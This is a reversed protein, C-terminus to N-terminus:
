DKGLHFDLSLLDHVEAQNFKYYNSKNDTEDFIRKFDNRHYHRQTTVSNFVTSSNSMDDCMALGNSMDDSVTTVDVQTDEYIEEKTTDDEDSNSNFGIKHFCVLKDPGVMLGVKGDETTEWFKADM